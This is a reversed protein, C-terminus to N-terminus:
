AKTRRHCSSLLLVLRRFATIKYRRSLQGPVRWSPALPSLLFSKSMRSKSVLHPSHDADRGPRAKGRPFPGGSSMLYVPHSESSSKVCLSFPFGKGWGLISGREDLRCDSVTSVSSGPEKGLRQAFCFCSIVIWAGTIYLWCCPNEFRKENVLV